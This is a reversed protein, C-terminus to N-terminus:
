SVGVVSASPVPVCALMCVLLSIPRSLSFWNITGAVPLLEVCCLVGDAGPVGVGGTGSTRVKEQCAADGSQFLLMMSSVLHKRELVELRLRGSGPGLLFVGLFDVAADVLVTDTLAVFVYKGLKALGRSWREEMAAAGVRGLAAAQAHTRTRAHTRANSFWTLVHM